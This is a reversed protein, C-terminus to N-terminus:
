IEELEPFMAKRPKLHSYDNQTIAEYTECPGFKGVLALPNIYHEPNDFPHKLDKGCEWWHIVRQIIPFLVKREWNELADKGLTHRWRKFYHDPGAGKKKTGSPMILSRGQIDAEIRELFQERTEEQGQKLGPRRIVDYIVGRPAPWGVEQCHTTLTLLYLMTQLDLHLSTDLTEEDIIAKTKIEHLWVSDKGTCPDERLVGDWKGRLPIGHYMHRFTRERYLWQWKANPEAYFQQWNRFLIPLIAASTQLDRFDSEPLLGPKNYKKEWDRAVKEPEATGLFEHCHHFRDGFEIPLRFKASEWGECYLIRFQEPCALFVSLATQTIGHQYLNWKVGGEKKLKPLAKPM